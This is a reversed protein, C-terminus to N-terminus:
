YWTRGSYEKLGRMADSGLVRRQKLAQNLHVVGEALGSFWAGVCRNRLSSWGNHVVWAISNVLAMPWPLNRWSVWIRNRTSFYLYRCGPRAVPTEWHLVSLDGCHRMGFGQDLIRYALDLEESYIFLEGWFGGAADFAERRLAAGAACFYTCPYDGGIVRKDQRPIAKRDVEGTYANRITLSLVGLKPDREFYEVITRLAKSSEFEADDDILVCVEGRALAFAQNRGEAAGLNREMRFYRVEPFQERVLSPTEDTSANDVVVVEYASYDQTGISRLCGELASARNMTLVLISVLPREPAHDETEPDSKM